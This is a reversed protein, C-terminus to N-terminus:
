LGLVLAEHFRVNDTRYKEIIQFGDTKLPDPIGTIYDTQLRLFFPLESYWQSLKTLKKQPVPPPEDPDPNQREPLTGPQTKYVPIASEVPEVPDIPNAPDVPNILGVPAITDIPVYQPINRVKDAAYKAKTFTKYLAKMPKSRYTKGENVGRELVHQFPAIGLRSRLVDDIETATAGEELLFFAERLFPEFLRDYVYGDIRGNVIEFRLLSIPPPFNKKSALIPAFGVSSLFNISSAISDDSSLNLPVIEALDKM